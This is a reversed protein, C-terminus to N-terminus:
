GIGWFRALKAGAARLESAAQMRARFPSKYGLEYGAQELPWEHCVVREVTPRLLEIIDNAQRVQGRHHAQAESKAMGSSNSPDSAFVRNLDVSGVGPLLGSHYWHHRYKQLATYERGELGSRRWLRELPEDTLRLVKGTRDDGGVIYDSGAKQAREPTLLLNIPDIVSSSSRPRERTTTRMDRIRKALTHGM